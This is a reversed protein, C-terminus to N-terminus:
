TPVFVPNYPEETLSNWDSYIWGSPVRIVDKKISPIWIREHLALDHVSKPTRTHVDTEIEM